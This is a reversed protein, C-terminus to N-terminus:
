FKKSVGKVSGQFVRSVEMFSGQFKRSVVQFLRSVSQFGGQILWQVEKVGKLVTLYRIINWIYWLSWLCYLIFLLSVFLYVFAVVRQTIVNRQLQSDSLHVGDSFCRSICILVRESGKKIRSIDWHPPPIEQSKTGKKHCWTDINVWALFLSTFILYDQFSALKPRARNFSSSKGRTKFGLAKTLDSGISSQKKEEFCEM